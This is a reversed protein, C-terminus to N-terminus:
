RPMEMLAFTEGSRGALVTIRGIRPVDFPEVVVVGGLEAARTADLDADETEVYALWHAETAPMLGAAEEGGALFVTYGVPGSPLEMTIDVTNWGFLTRYFPIATAPDPTCLEAWSFAHPKHLLDATPGQDRVVFTAGAPDTVVRQGTGAVENVVAHLNWGDRGPAGYGAVTRGDVTFLGASAHWGFLDAYFTVDGDALDMWYM